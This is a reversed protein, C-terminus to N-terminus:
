KGAGQGNEAITRVGDAFLLLGGLSGSGRQVCLRACERVELISFFQQEDQVSYWKPDHFM